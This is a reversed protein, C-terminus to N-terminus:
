KAEAKKKVKAQFMEEVLESAEIDAPADSHTTQLNETQTIWTGDIHEGVLTQLFNIHEERTNLAPIYSYAEGGAHMFIERNEENIEELTELCDASFGPCVIDVSKIGAQPLIELTKDCYPQLWPERGFRSQFVLQWDDEHLELKEAVLRATKHAQCFYPDGNDLYRKPIGHFSFMLRKKRGHQQWHESISNAVAAIYGPHDHYQNIFRTEPLWRYEKLRDTVEDFVSASTTASYQPYMPITLLRQINKQKLKYIAKVISPEGYRMASEVFVPVKYHAQLKEQLADAQQQSIHILPSGNETWVKRYAAAAKRPRFRLIILNLILWWIARPMEVIRKDSLFEKLYPKLAKATPAAPSGLNVLVIGIAAPHNHPCDNNIFPTSM